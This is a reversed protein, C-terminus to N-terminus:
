NEGPKRVVPRLYCPAHTSKTPQQQTSRASFTRVHLSFTQTQGIRVLNPRQLVAFGPHLRGNLVHLRCECASPSGILHSVRGRGLFVGPFPRITAHRIRSTVLQVSVAHLSNLLLTLWFDCQLVSVNRLCYLLLLTMWFSSSLPRFCLDVFKGPPRRTTEVPRHAVKRAADNRRSYYAFTKCVYTSYQPAVM